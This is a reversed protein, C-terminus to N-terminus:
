SSSPYREGQLLQLSQLRLWTIVLTEEPLGGADEPEVGEALLRAAERPLLEVPGDETVCLIRPVVEQFHDLSLLVLLEALVGHIERDPHVLVERPCRLLGHMVVVECDQGMGGRHQRDSRDFLCMSLGDVALSMKAPGLMALQYPNLRMLNEGVDSLM